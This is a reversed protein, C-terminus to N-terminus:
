TEDTCIMPRDEQRYQKIGRIFAMRQFPIDQRETLVMRNNQTRKWKFGLKKLVRRLSSESGSFAKHEVLKTHLHRMTPRGGKNIAFNYISKHIAEEDFNGFTSKLSPKPRNEGQTSVSTGPGEKLELYKRENIVCQITCSLVGTANAARKNFGKIPIQIVESAERKM